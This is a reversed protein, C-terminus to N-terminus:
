SCFDLTLLLRRQGDRVDPSRHVLGANENGEWLEGKLLAVDGCDLQRFDSKHQVLGTEHDGRGDSEAGLYSRNVAHHPLWQTAVGQYTTLLRCPVKDTHFRPCMARDLTTLRLGARKLEFLCCFMDVLGAINDCLEYHCSGAIAERLVTSARQPTTTLSIQFDPNAAVFDAVDQALTSSLRREWISMNIEQKYIEALISAHKGLAAHRSKGTTTLHQRTDFVRSQRTSSM